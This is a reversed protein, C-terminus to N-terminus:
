SFMLFIVASLRTSVLFILALLRTLLLTPGGQTLTPIRRTLTNDRVWLFLPQPLLFGADGGASAWLASPAVLPLLTPRSLFAAVQRLWLFEELRDGRAFGATKGM